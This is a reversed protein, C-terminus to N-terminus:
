PSIRQTSVRPKLSAHAALLHTAHSCNKLPQQGPSCCRVPHTASAQQRLPLPALSSLTTTPWVPLPGCSSGSAPHFLLHPVPPNEQHQINSLFFRCAWSMAMIHLSASTTMSCWALTRPALPLGPLVTALLLNPLSTTPIEMKELREIKPRENKTWSLIDNLCVQIDSSWSLVYCSLLIFIWRCVLQLWRQLAHSVKNVHLQM